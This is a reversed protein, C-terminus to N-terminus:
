KILELLEIDNLVRIGNNFNERVYIDYKPKSENIAEAIKSITPYESIIPKLPTAFIYDIEDPFNIEFNLEGNKTIAPEESGIRYSQNEFNNFEKHWSEQFNSLIDSRKKNFQIAVAGWSSILRKPYRETSIGEAKSLDFAQEKLEDFSSIEKMFPILFGTGLDTVSNSFVMTYTDQRNRSKRGYRIPVRISIKKELALNERWKTRLKGQDKDLSNEENEWLLSGIVIVAGKM